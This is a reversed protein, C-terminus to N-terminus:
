CNSPRIKMKNRPIIKKKTAVIKGDHLRKVKNQFLGRMPLKRKGPPCPLWYSDPEHGTGPDGTAYETVGADKTSTNRSHVYRWYSRLSIWRNAKKYQFKFGVLRQYDEHCVEPMDKEISVRAKIFQDLTGAGSVRLKILKPMITGVKICEEELSSASAEASVLSDPGPVLIESASTSARVPAEAVQATMLSAPTSFSDISRTPANRYADLAAKEADMASTDNALANASPVLLAATGLAAGIALEARNIRTQPDIEAAPPM